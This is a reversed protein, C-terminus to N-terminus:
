KEGSKLLSHIYLLDLNLQTCDIKISLHNGYISIVDFFTIIIQLNRALIWRKDLSMSKLARGMAFVSSRATIKM